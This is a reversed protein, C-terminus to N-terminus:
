EYGAKQAGKIYSHPKKLWKDYSPASYGKNEVYDVYSNYLARVKSRSQPRAVLRSVERDFTKRSAKGLGLANTQRVMESHLKVDNKKRKEISSQRNFEEKDEMYLMAKNLVKGVGTFTNQVVNLAHSAAKGTETGTLLALASEFFNNGIGFGSQAWFNQTRTLAAQAEKLDKAAILDDISAKLQKMEYPKFEKAKELNFDLLEYQKNLNATEQVVKKKQEENLDKQTDMLQIQKNNLAITNPIVEDIEKQIKEKETMSKESQTNKLQTDARINAIEEALKAFTSTNGLLDVYPASAGSSVSPSAQNISAGLPQAASMDGYALAPNMGAGKLSEVQRSYQHKLDDIYDKRQTAYDKLNDARQIGYQEKWYRQMREDHQKQQKAQSSSSFLGGLLSSVAGIGAGAVAGWPGFSSGAAAGSGASSVTNGILSM